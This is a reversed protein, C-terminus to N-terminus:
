IVCVRWTVSCAPSTVRATRQSLQTQQSRWQSCLRVKLSSGNKPGNAFNRFAVILKTMDTRGCAVVGSGSSPNEHFKINSYKKRFDICFISTENFDSLFLTLTCWMFASIRKQEYRAWNKKSHSINWIFNASSILVCIKHEFVNTKRFDHRKKLYNYNPFINYLPAPRWLYFYPAHVNCAPYSLSCVCVWDIYYKNQKEVAVTTVPVCRM